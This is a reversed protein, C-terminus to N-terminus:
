LACPSFIHTCRFLHARSRYNNRQWIPSADQPERTITVGCPEIIDFNSGAQIGRADSRDAPHKSSHLRIRATQACLTFSSAMAIGFFFLPTKTTQLREEASQSRQPRTITPVSLSVVDRAADLDEADETRVLAMMTRWDLLSLLGVKWTQGKRQRVSAHTCRKHQV